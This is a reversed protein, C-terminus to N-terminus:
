QNSGDNRAFAIFKRAVARGLVRGAELDSPFHIGAWVRSNAAEDAMAAAESAHHPFLFALMEARSYSFTSHNSPYSPFNPVSFLPNVGPDLQHPRPYWYTFKAHQNAIFTDYHAAALLAYVRAARPANRHMQDEFMWKEAMIFPKTERGEPSQWYYAKQNSQFTRQHERVLAVEAKM